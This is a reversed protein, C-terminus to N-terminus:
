ASLLDCERVEQYSLQGILARDGMFSQFPEGREATPDVTGRRIRDLRRKLVGVQEQGGSRRTMNGPHRRYLLCLADVNVKAVDHEWCRLFFDHDEGFPMGEDFLGCELFVERRFLCSGLYPMRYVGTRFYRGDATSWFQRMLGQAIGAQPNERLAGGLIRLHNATWLDDIDLFAIIDGTSERIARNRAAAPGQPEQRIYRVNAGYHQSREALDDSSGDDVLLVELNPYCQALVSNMAPALFLAGNRAPIVVSILPESLSM